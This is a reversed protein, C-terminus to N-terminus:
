VFYLNGSKCSHCPSFCRIKLWQRRNLSSIKKRANAQVHIYRNIISTNM